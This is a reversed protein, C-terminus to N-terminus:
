AKLDKECSTLSMVAAAAMACLTKFTYHKM